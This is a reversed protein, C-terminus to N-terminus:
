KDKTESTNLDEHEDEADDKGERYALKRALKMLEEQQKSHEKRLKDEKKEKNKLDKWLFTIGTILLGIITLNGGPASLAPTVEGVILWTPSFITMVMGKNLWLGSVTSILVFGIM